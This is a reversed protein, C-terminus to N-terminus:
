PQPGRSAGLADALEEIVKFGDAPGTGRGGPVVIAAETQDPREGKQAVLRETVRAANAASSAAFELPTNEAGGQSPEASIVNPRVV